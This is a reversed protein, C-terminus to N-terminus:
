LRANSLIIAHVLGSDGLELLLLCFDFGRWFILCLHTENLKVRPKVLQDLPEISTKSFAVLVVPPKIAIKPLCTSACRKAGFASLLHKLLSGIPLKTPRSLHAARATGNM